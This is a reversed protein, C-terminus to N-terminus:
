VRLIQVAGREAAIVPQDKARSLIALATLYTGAAGDGCTAVLDLYRKRNRLDVEFIFFGNDDTATPLASTAGAIDASTGFILGAVDAFGSGSADSEQVKLVTMAIDMAGLYVIITAYDYGLCDIAATTASANDIIAAPPTVSVYKCNQLHNM